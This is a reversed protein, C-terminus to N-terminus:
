PAEAVPAAVGARRAHVQPERRRVPRAGPLQRRLLRLLVARVAPRPGGARRPDVPLRALRRRHVRPDRARHPDVRHARDRDLHRHRLLVPPLDAARQDPRPGRTAGAKRLLEVIRKTTTGRVISDDVVILRKGAVVERLPNLKITVGRHRLGQSPQIFTRGAYRNRYMGERYPLGSAEAYGAAAPAGTDPVPCSWTRTSRTSSPSSSAWGAACRTCTAGRWTRTPGPSTSSSSCACSRTRRPTASPARRGARAGPRRDRRARRRPHVRRRRHRPQGDGVVPVLGAAGDDDWLLGDNPGGVAPREAPCGAWSSRGSATRTACASSGSSTSSSWASRAASAPCCRSAAGRRHGRGARRRPAGDAAGHRDLRAAAVPRRAAPRAAGAHQRPQRQPRHRHRAATGPPVDAPREGLDDIGTTSYRCHAIALKGRLSPLRREDLVTSIMGLDKYLMLQEGDSVAVGPRSRAATSSRSCASRRSRPRRPRARRGPTVAGFVGCM